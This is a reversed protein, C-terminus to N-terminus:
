DEKEEVVIRECCAFLLVFLWGDDHHIGVKGVNLGVGGGGIGGERCGLLVFAAATEVTRCTGEVFFFAGDKGPGYM